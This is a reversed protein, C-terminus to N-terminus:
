PCPSRGISFLETENKMDMRNKRIERMIIRVLDRDLFDELYYTLDTSIKVNNKTQYVLRM